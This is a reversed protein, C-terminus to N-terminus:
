SKGVAGSRRPSWGKRHERGKARTGHAKRTRREGPDDRHGDGQSADGRAVTVQRRRGRVHIREVRRRGGCRDVPARRWRRRRPVGPHHVEQEVASRRRVVRGRQHRGAVRRKRRPSVREVGRRGGEEIRATAEGHLIEQGVGRGVRALERRGVDSAISCRVAGDQHDTVTAVRVEVSHVAAARADARHGGTGRRGRASSATRPAEDGVVAAVRRRQAVHPDCADIMLAPRERGDTRSLTVSAGLSRRPTIRQSQRQGRAMRRRATRGSTEDMAAAPTQRRTARAPAVDGPPAGGAHFSSHCAGASHGGRSRSISWTSRM